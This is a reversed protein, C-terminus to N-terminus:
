RKFITDDGTDYSFFGTASDKKIFVDASNLLQLSDWQIRYNGDAVAGGGNSFSGYARGAHWDSDRLNRMLEVGEQVLGSATYNNRIATASTINVTFLGTIATLAMSLVLVAILSEVLTFGSEKIKLKCNAIKMSNEFM